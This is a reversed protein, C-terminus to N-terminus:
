FVIFPFYTFDICVIVDHRNLNVSNRIRPVLLISDLSPLIANQVASKQIYIIIRARPVPAPSSESGVPSDCLIDHRRKM